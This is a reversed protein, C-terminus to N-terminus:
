QFRGETRYLMSGSDVRSTQCNTQRGADHNPQFFIGLQSDESIPGKRHGPWSGRAVAQRAFSTDRSVGPEVLSAFGTPHMRPNPV